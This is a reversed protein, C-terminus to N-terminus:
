LELSALERGGEGLLVVGALASRDVDAWGVWRGDGDDSAPWVGADHREGEEDVAVLRCTEGPRLGAVAVDLASGDKASSAIVTVKVPGETATVTQEDNGAAWVVIGTGV